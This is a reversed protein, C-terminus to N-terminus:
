IELELDESGCDCDDEDCVVGHAEHGCRDCVETDDDNEEEDWM